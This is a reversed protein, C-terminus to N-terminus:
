RKKEIIKMRRGNSKKSRDPLELRIKDTFKKRKRPTISILINNNIFSNRKIELIELTIAFNNDISDEINNVM